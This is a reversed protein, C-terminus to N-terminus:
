LSVLGISSSGLSRHTDKYIWLSDRISLTYNFGTKKLIWEALRHIKIPSNLGNVNLNIIIPFSKVIAMKNNAKQKDQLKKGRM